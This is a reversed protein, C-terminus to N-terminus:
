VGSIWYKCGMWEINADWENSLNIFLDIVHQSHTKERKHAYCDCSEKKINKTRSEAHYSM